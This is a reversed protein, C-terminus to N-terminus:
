SITYSTALADTVAINYVIVGHENETAVHFHSLPHIAYGRAECETAVHAAISRQVRRLRWPKYITTAPVHMYAHGLLIGPRNPDPELRMDM